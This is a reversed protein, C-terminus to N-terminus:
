SCCLIGHCLDVVEKEDGTRTIPSEFQRWSELMMKGQNIADDVVSKKIAIPKAYCLEGGLQKALFIKM